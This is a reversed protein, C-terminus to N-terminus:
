DAGTDVHHKLMSNVDAGKLVLIPSFFSLSNNLLIFNM